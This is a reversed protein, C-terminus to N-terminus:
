KKAPAEEKKAPTEKSPEKAAPEPKAAPQAPAETKAGPEVKAGPEKSAETKAGPEATAAAEPKTNEEKLVDENITIKANKKLDQVYKDLIEAQKEQTIKQKIFEKVEPFPVYAPPKMGELKIIHYGLQTKIIPSVQGVKQLKFAAEEYAPLLTGKPHYGVDGGSAKANPDVSHKRALEGFDEGKQIRSLVEKAEQESKLVIQRTQIETERKFEDKKADYYKQLDEDGLKAETTVKKKLLSEILLQEKIDNFRDQFEKQNEIDEKKAEKLLLKKIVIRDLFNRKGTQTAVLMKMNVPIKDLEKNFEQVTLKDGDITVLVKGEDKKSCAILPLLLLLVVLLKKM